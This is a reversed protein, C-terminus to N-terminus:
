GTNHPKWTKFWLKGGPIDATLVESDAVRIETGPPAPTRPIRLADDIDGLIRVTGKVYHDNGEIKRIKEITKPDYIESNISVSGRVLAEIMGLVKKGDYELSVYEGVKPCKRPSSALM